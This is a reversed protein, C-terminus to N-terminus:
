IIGYLVRYSISDGANKAGIQVVPNKMSLDCLTEGAKMVITTYDTTNYYLKIAIDTSGDNSFYILKNAYFRETAPQVVGEIETDTFVLTQSSTINEKEYFITDTIPENASSITVKLDHIEHILDSILNDPTTENEKLLLKRLQYSAESGTYVNSKINSLDGSAITDLGVIGIHNNGEQLKVTGDDVIIKGLLNTGYPLSVGAGFGTIIGDYSMSSGSLDINTNQLISMDFNDYVSFLSITIDANGKNLLFIQNTPVPRGFTATTNRDVKFEYNSETPTTTIGVHIVANNPNQIYFMNPATDMFTITKLANGGIQVQEHRWSATASSMGFQNLPAKTEQKLAM